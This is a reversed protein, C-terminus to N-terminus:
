PEAPPEPMYSWHTIGGLVSGHLYFSPRTTVRKGYYATMVMPPEDEYNGPYYPWVLVPTGFSDKKRDCKPVGRGVPTWELGPRPSRLRNAVEQLFDAFSCVVGKGEIVDAIAANSMASVTSAKPM